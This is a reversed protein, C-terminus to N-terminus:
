PQRHQHFENIHKATTPSYALGSANRAVFYTELKPLLEAYKFWEYSFGANGKIVNSGTSNKYVGLRKFYKM